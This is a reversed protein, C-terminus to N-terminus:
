VSKKIKINVKDCNAAIKVEPLFHHAGPKVDRSVVKASLAELFAKIALADKNGIFALFKAQCEEDTTASPDNFSGLLTMLKELHAKSLAKLDTFHELENKKIQKHITDADPDGTMEVPINGVGKCKSNTKEYDAGTAQGAWKKGTPAAIMSINASVEIDPENYSCTSTKGTTKRSAGKDFAKFIIEGAGNLSDPLPVGNIKPTTLAVGRNGLVTQVANTETFAPDKYSIKRKLGPGEGKNQIVHTLEHALLHKGEGSGPDYKGENFVIHNEYAYAQANIERASEAAEKGTHIKVDSFDAGMRNEYFTQVGTDMHYGKNHISGIYGSATAATNSASTGEEKKQIKQEEKKEEKKM